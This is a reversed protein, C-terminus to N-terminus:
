KDSEWEQERHEIIADISVPEIRDKATKIFINKYGAFKINLACVHCPYVDKGYLPNGKTTQGVLLFVWGKKPQRILAATEAHVEAGVEVREGNNVSYATRACEGNCCRSQRNNNEVVFLPDANPGGYAILAAYQRRQCPSEKAANEAILFYPELLKSTIVRFNEVTKVVESTDVTAVININIDPVKAM